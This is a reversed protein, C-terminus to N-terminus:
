NHGGADKNAILRLVFQQYEQKAKKSMYTKKESMHKESM